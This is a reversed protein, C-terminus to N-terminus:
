ILWMSISDPNISKPNRITEKMRHFEKLDDNVSVFEDLSLDPDQFNLNAKFKFSESDIGDDNKWRALMTM